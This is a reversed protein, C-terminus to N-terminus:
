FAQLGQLNNLLLFTSIGSPWIRLVYTRVALYLQFLPFFPNLLGLSFFYFVLNPRLRHHVAFLSPQCDPPDRM